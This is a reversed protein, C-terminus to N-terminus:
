KKKTNLDFNQVRRSHANFSAIAKQVACTNTRDYFTLRRALEWRKSAREQSVRKAPGFLPAQECALLFNVLTKALKLTNKITILNLEKDDRHTWFIARKVNLINKREPETLQDLLKINLISFMLQIPRITM